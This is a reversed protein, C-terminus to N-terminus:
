HKGRDHRDGRIAPETPLPRGWHAFSSIFGQKLRDFEASGPQVGLGHAIAGWGQSHDHQWQEVVARCPQGATQALACAYYIDGPTWQPNHMLADVLARPAAHYRVIEDVFAEPYRAAYQNIDGLTADVTADGTQPNWGSVKSADTTKSADTAKSPDTAMASATLVLAMVFAALRLIHRQRSGTSM